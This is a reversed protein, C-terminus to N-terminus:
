SGGPCCLLNLTLRPQRTFDLRYFCFLGVFISTWVLGFVCSTLFSFLASFGCLGHQSWSSRDQPRRCAKVWSLINRSCQQCISPFSVELILTQEFCDDVLFCPFLFVLKCILIIQKFMSQQFQLKLWELTFPPFVSRLRKRDLQQSFFFRFEQMAQVCLGAPRPEKLRM